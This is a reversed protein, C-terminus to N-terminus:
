ASCQSAIPRCLFVLAQLRPLHKLQDKFLVSGRWTAASSHDQVAPSSWTSGVLPLGHSQHHSRCQRHLHNMSSTHSKHLWGLLWCNVHILLHGRLNNQIHNFSWNRQKQPHLQHNTHCWLAPVQFFHVQMASCILLHHTEICFVVSFLTASLGLHHLSSNIEFFDQSWRRSGPNWAYPSGVRSIDDKNVM